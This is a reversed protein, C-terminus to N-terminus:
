RDPSQTCLGPYGSSQSYKLATVAVPVSQMSEMRKRATVIIEELVLANEQAYVALPLASGGALVIAVSLAKVPTKFM